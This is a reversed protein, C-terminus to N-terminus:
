IETSVLPITPLSGHDGYAMSSPCMIQPKGGKKMKQLAETWRPLVRSLPFEAIQGCARVGAIV